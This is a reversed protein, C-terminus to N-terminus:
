VSPSRAFTTYTTFSADSYYRYMMIHRHRDPSLLMELISQTFKVILLFPISDERNPQEENERTGADGGTFTEVEVSCEARHPCGSKLQLPTDTHARGTIM